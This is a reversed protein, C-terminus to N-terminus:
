AAVTVVSRDRPSLEPRKWLGALLPGKTYQELAPSVARIDDYTLVSPLVQAKKTDTM